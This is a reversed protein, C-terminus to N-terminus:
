LVGDRLVAYETTATNLVVDGPARGAVRLPIRAYPRPSKWGGFLELALREIGSPDFDGVVALESDSAGYFDAYCRKVDALSLAKLRASREDLTATYLWHEPPSRFLTTYPFLTSRPPRRIM